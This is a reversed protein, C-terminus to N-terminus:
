GEGELVARVRIYGDESRPANRLIDERPLSERPADEREVSHLDLSQATPPVDSTDIENLVQFHDLITSLQDGLRTVEEDTLGIRVLRAIYRVEDASLPMPSEQGALEARNAASPIRLVSRNRLRSSMAIRSASGGGP